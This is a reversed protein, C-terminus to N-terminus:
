QSVGDKVFFEVLKGNLLSFFIIYSSLVVTYRLGFYYIIAPIFYIKVNRNYLMAALLGSRAGHKKLEALMPFLVYPPGSIFVGGVIAYLWGRLGSEAGLHKRIRDPNLFMNTLLLVIFVLALVPLVKTLMGAFYSLANLTVASNFQAIVGYLGITFFLFKMRGSLKITLHRDHSKM